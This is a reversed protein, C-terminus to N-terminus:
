GERGSSKEIERARRLFYAAGEGDGREKLFRSLETFPKPMHAAEAAARFYWKEANGAGGRKEYARAIYMMSECREDALVAGPMSLHRILTRICMDWMGREFYARGLCFVGRADQPERKVRTRLLSLEGGDGCPKGDRAAESGETEKRASM